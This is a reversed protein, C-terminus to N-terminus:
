ENDQVIEGLGLLLPTLGKHDDHLLKDVDILVTTTNSGMYMQTPGLPQVSDGFADTFNSLYDEDFSALVFGHDNRGTREALMSTYKTIGIYLSASVSEPHFPGTRFGEKVALTGVEFGDRSMDYRGLMDWGTDDIVLEGNKADKVTKFGADSPLILRTSGVVEGDRKVVIFRSAEDYERYEEQLEEPSNVYGAEFFVEFELRESDKWDQSDRDHVVLIEDNGPGVKQEPPLTPAEHM